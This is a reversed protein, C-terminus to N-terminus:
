VEKRLACSSTCYKCDLGKCSEILSSTDRSTSCATGENLRSAISRSDDTLKSDIAIKGLFPVHLQAATEAVKNDMNGGNLKEVIGIIATMHKRLLSIFRIQSILARPSNDSIVLTGMLEPIYKLISKIGNEPDSKLPFFLFDLVEDRRSLFSMVEQEFTNDIFFSQKLEFCSSRIGVDSFSSVISELVREDEGGLVLIKRGIMDMQNRFSLDSNKNPSM